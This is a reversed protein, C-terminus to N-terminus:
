ATKKLVPHLVAPGSRRGRPRGPSRGCPKPAAAPTGLAARVSPFARRVRCPTLGPRRQAREWPLRRDGVRDRALRLHTYALLVLWTWRDAQEPSRVRPATWNLTQKAFRLTHEVDFRRTYARWIVALDPQGPGHWFLWLARPQRTQGPLKAVEVLVVTGRVLPRPRRTGVTRHAKVVSHLGAWARVRVRGYQPDDGTYEDTPEPWTAPDRCIFKAGHRPPRGNGIYGTPDAYFCRNSRLRVLLAARTGALGLALAVPDYGADFVFLPVAQEGAPLRGVVANVQEIAATNADLSPHVRRVDLPATWSDREFSLQALWQYAWGAVIPKGNSHRSPHYYFGRAPSTEADCRPWVSVDVAYVPQGAALPQHALLARLADADIRGHRLAGYLSGWGRRHAPALSLHVFSPIADATLVADVLDFLADRRRGFCGYLDRRFAGLCDRSACDTM